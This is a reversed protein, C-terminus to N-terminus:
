IDYVYMRYEQTLPILMLDIYMKSDDRDMEKMTDKIFDLSDNFLDSHKNKMDNYECEINNNRHQQKWYKIADQKRKPIQKLEDMMNNFLDYM